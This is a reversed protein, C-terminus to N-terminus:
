QIFHQNLFVNPSCLMLLLSFPATVLVYLTCTIKAPILDKIILMPVTKILDRDCVLSWFTNIELEPIFLIKNFLFLVRQVRMVTYEMCTVTPNM